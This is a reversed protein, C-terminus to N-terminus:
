NVPRITEAPDLQAARVAPYLGAIAGMVLAAINAAALWRIPLSILWGQQRAYAITVAAGLGAGLLGGLSALTASELVFQTAIHRRTAGLARRLGVEGRRELVSIIMVNAIGVVGVVLAVGGLGLLLNQLSEDIQARAELADSPRSVRVENPDAPNVTRALVERVSEVENPEARLFIGTPIVDAGLIESAAENGVLVSRDIDPNLPLPDLIGIVAFRIGAIRVTPGGDLDTIALRQAAVSGLVTVPLESTSEDLFRGTALAGELTDLLDPETAVVDLRNNKDTYQNRQVETALRSMSSARQVPGVRRVMAPADVPLKADGGFIDQGAEVKLLNTGLRDIEAILDAKSSASIGVVAIMSAIGIAIGVSTLAARSRRSRLGVTGSALADLLRVRSRGITQGPITQRRRRIRNASM